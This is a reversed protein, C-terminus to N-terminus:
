GSPGTADFFQVHNSSLPLILLHEGLFKVVFAIGILLLHLMFLFGSILLHFGNAQEIVLVGRFRNGLEM